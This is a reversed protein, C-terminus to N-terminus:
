LTNRLNLWSSDTGAAFGEDGVMANHVLMLVYSILTRLRRNGEHYMRKRFHRLLVDRTLVAFM